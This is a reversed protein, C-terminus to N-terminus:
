APALSLRVPLAYRGPALGPRLELRLRLKLENAGAIAVQSMEIGADGLIVPAALGEIRISEALGLRPAVQLLYRQARTAHVRYRVDLEKYGRELDAATLIVAAPAEVIQLTLRGAVQASVGFSAQRAAAGAPQILVTALALAAHPWRAAHTIM